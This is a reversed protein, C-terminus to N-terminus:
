SSERAGALLARLDCSEGAPTPPSSSREGAFDRARRAAALRRARRADRERREEDGASTTTGAPTRRSRSSPSSGTSARATAGRRGMRHAGRPLARAAARTGPSGEAGDRCASVVDARGLRPGRPARRGRLGAGIWDLFALAAQGPRTFARRRRRSFTCPIGHERSLEWCSRPTPRRRRHALIEVEDFPFGEALVRRFVERIENEEGTARFLKAKAGSASWADSPSRPSPRSAAAPSANSSTASSPPCSRGRRCFTSPSRRRRRGAAAAEVARRLVEARDVFRAPPSRPTTARSSRRLERAQALRRLRGRAPRRSLDRGRAARRVHAPARPPLRPPRAAARFVVRRRASAAPRSSSPWRSRARCCGCARAPSTRRRRARARAHPGDRRAPQDM